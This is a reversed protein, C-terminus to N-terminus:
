ASRGVHFASRLLVCTGPTDKTGRHLYLSVGCPSCQWWHLYGRAPIGTDRLGRVMTTLDELRGCCTPCTGGLATELAAPPADRFTPAVTPHIRAGNVGTLLPEVIVAKEGTM